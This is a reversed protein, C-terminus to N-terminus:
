LGESIARDADSAVTVEIQDPYRQWAILNLSQLRDLMAQLAYAQAGSAYHRAITFSWGDAAPPDNAGILQQYHTDTVTSTVILPAAGGSLSRVRGALEILLRLAVPQLGRYLAPSVGLRSAFSGMSPDYSLGLSGANVPLRALQGGAYATALANPDSLIPTRDPPHLVVEASGADTELAALRRLAAPDSRYLAMIQEAALVRWYYTWSDDGFSSLLRYAAAHRDPATDFYLQVYPVPTGGDYAGLVGALNGIGMHYSELALDLRGFRQDAIRLYRVTAALAQRPDFRQDVKARQAELRVLRAGSAVEISRTLARSKALDVRMGLLSTGTAAEIQTLGVAGAPDGGAIADPVGASELYVIGELTAPDIGSGAAASDIAPRYAAVRRATAIAGGPSKEFLVQGEGAIARAVFQSAHAAVYAFPDGSVAPPASSAPPLPPPNGGGLAVVLVAVILVLSGAAVALRALGAGRSRRRLM